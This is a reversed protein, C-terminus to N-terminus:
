NLAIFKKQDAAVQEGMIEAVSGGFMKGLLGANMTGIYTKGDSKQYVSITCPMFVSVIKNDDEKLIDYAYDPKCINVLMVPPLEGGGHKSISKHIQTVGPVVWNQERAKQKIRAVTEEVGYPSEREQLMLEPAYFWGTAGTVVVGLIVGVLVSVLPKM